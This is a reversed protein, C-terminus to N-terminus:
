KKSTCSSSQSFFDCLKEEFSACSGKADMKKKWREHNAETVIRALEDLNKSSSKIQEKIKEKLVEMWAQDALELFKKSYDCSKEGKHDGSCCSRQHCSCSCSQSHCGCGGKSCSHQSCQCM